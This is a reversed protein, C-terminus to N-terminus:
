EPNSPLTLGSQSAKSPGTLHLYQRIDEAITLTLNSAEWWMDERKRDGFSGEQLVLGYLRTAQLYRSKAEAHKRRLTRIDGSIQFSHKREFDICVQFAQIRLLDSSMFLLPPAERRALQRPLTRILVEFGDWPVYVLYQRLPLTSM